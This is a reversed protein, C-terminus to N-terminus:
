RALGDLPRGVARDLQLSAIVADSIAQVEDSQAQSLNVQATIQDLMTGAGVRFREQALRLQEQANAITERTLTIRERAEVLSNYLQRVELQVDLRAQDLNYEAIRKQAKARGRNSLTQLRDFINWSVQYGWSTADSKQAGFRFESENESLAYSGFLNLQPWLQSGAVTVDGERAALTFAGSQLDPRQALAEAFLTDLSEPEHEADLLSADVDFHELLPRNMAHALDAFAQAVANRARIEDLRTQELRVKAQLVDSRAASGIRHYTETKELERGALDRAEEAVSLLRQNRLLNIYAVSVAQIVLQRSYAQEAEAARQTNRASKLEGFKGFGGFVNFNSNLSLRKDKYKTELDMKDIVDGTLPDRIEYDFDTRESRQFTYSSTLNPLFASWAQRVGHRASATTERAIALSRSSDLAIDICQALDYVPVDQQARAPAASFTNLAALTVSIAVV